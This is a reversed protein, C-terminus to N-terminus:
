LGKVLKLIIKLKQYELKKFLRYRKQQPEMPDKSNSCRKPKLTSTSIPSDQYVEM